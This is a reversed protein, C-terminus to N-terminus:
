ASLGQDLLCKFAGTLCHCCLGCQHSCHLGLWIGVVHWTCVSFSAKGSFAPSFFAPNFFAHTKM